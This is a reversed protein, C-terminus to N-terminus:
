TKMLHNTIIWIPVCNILHQNRDCSLDDKHSLLGLLNLKDDQNFCWLGSGSMGRIDRAGGTVPLANGDLDTLSDNGIEKEAFDGQILENSVKSIGGCATYTLCNTM